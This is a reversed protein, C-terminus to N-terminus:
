GLLDRVREPPRGLVARDGAIVIPREILIPHKAMAEILEADSKSSDALGLETYATEGTRLCVRPSGGLLHVVDALEATSPPADLYLRVQPTIGANQLLELAARSKSCRPNHWITVDRM